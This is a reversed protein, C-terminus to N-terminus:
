HSAHASIKWLLKDTARSVETFLDATTADGATAALDIAERSSRTFDALSAGLARLHEMGALLGPDWAPLRTAAAVTHLTGAAVGGLAVAREAIEDALEDLVNGVEDFLAHLPVFLPGKVNWHAQRAQLGLDIADALLQNLVPIMQARVTASLTHGSDWSPFPATTM